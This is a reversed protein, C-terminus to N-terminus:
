NIRHAQTPVQLLRVKRLSFTSPYSKYCRFYSPGPLCVNLFLKRATPSAYMAINQGAGAELEKVAMIDNTFPVFFHSIKFGSAQKDKQRKKKKECQCTFPNEDFRM